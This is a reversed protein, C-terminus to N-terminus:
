ETTAPLSCLGITALFIYACLYYNHLQIATEYGVMKWENIADTSYFHLAFLNAIEIVIIEREKKHARKQQKNASINAIAHCPM